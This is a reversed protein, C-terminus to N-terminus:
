SIIRELATDIRVSCNELMKIKSTVETNIELERQAQEIEEKKKALEADYKESISEIMKSSSEKLLSVINKSLERKIPPIQAIINSRIKQEQKIEQMKGFVADIITPLAIIILEMWPALIETTIGFVTAATTARDRGHKTKANQKQSALFNSISSGTLDFLNRASTQLAEIFEPIDYNSFVADVHSLEDAFEASFRTSTTLMVDNIKSTVVSQM